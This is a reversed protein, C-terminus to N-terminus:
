NEQQLRANQISQQQVEKFNASIKSNDDSAETAEKAFKDKVTGQLLVSLAILM